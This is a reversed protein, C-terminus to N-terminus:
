GVRVGSEPIEIPTECPSSPDDSALSGSNCRPIGPRPIYDGARLDADGVPPAYSAPRESSNEDTNVPVPPDVARRVCRQGIVSLVKSARLRVLRGAM